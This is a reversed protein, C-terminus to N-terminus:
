AKKELLARAEENRGALRLYVNLDAMPETPQLTPM